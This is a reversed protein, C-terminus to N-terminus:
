SRRAARSAGFRESVDASPPEVGAMGNGMRRVRIASARPTAAQEGDSSTVAGDDTVGAASDGATAFTGFTGFTGTTGIGV